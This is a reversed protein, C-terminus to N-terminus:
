VAVKLCLDINKGIASKGLQRSYYLMMDEHLNGFAMAAAVKMKVKLRSIKLKNILVM